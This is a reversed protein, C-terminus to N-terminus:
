SRNDKLRSIKTECDALLDRVTPRSLTPVIGVDAGNLGSLLCVVLIGIYYPEGFVHVRMTLVFILAGGMVVTWVLGAASIKDALSLLLAIAALAVLMVVRLWFILDAASREESAILSRLQDRRAELRSLEDNGARPNARLGIPLIRPVRIM